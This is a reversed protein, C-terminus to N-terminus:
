SSKITVDVVMSIVHNIANDQLVISSLFWDSAWNRISYSKNILEFFFLPTVLFNSDRIRVKVVIKFSQTPNISHAISSSSTMRTPVNLMCKQQEDCALLVVTSYCPLKTVASLECTFNLDIRNNCISYRLREKKVSLM